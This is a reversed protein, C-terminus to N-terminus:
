TCALVLQNPTGGVTGQQLKLKTIVMNGGGGQYSGDIWIIYYRYPTLNPDTVIGTGGATLIFLQDAGTNSLVEHNINNINDIPQTGGRFDGILNMTGTINAFVTDNFDSAQNSGYVKFTRPPHTSSGYGIMDIRNIVVQSGLDINFKQQLAGGPTSWYSGAGPNGTAIYPAYIPNNAWTSTSKVTTADNPSPMITTYPCGYQTIAAPIPIDAPFAISNNASAMEGVFKSSEDNYASRQTQANDKTKKLSNVITFIVVSAIITVMAIEVISFGQAIRKM